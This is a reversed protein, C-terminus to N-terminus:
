PLGERKRWVWETLLLVVVLLLAGYNDWLSRTKTRPNTRPELREALDRVLATAQAMTDARFAGAAALRSLNALDAGLEIGEQSQHARVVLDRTEALTALDPHPSTVTIRWRGVGLGALTHHWLADADQVRALEIERETDAVPEGQDDLRQVRAHPPVTIATGDALRTRARLEVQDGPAILSRDLAAQLRDDHGRLRTGLGWRVAQLWFVQHIRDGLRDRWRWTEPSGMWLVRGAGFRQVAVVPTHAENQAELLVEAGPKAVVGQAIWQLPPLVPWLKRNLVADDLVAVIPNEAALQREAGGQPITVTVPATEGSSQNVVRVPLLNAIGGLGYAHPLGRPGAICVLFGGRRSVFRELRQQDEANVEGPALDGLVVLDFADLAEQTPPLLENENRPLRVSRYRRVVEIRRDREFMTVLYRSDWRPTADVVLVKLPDDNVTVNCEAQNNALSAETQDDSAPAGQPRDPDFPALRSGPIPRELSQDPLQWGVAVNSGGGGQKHLVELYYLRDKELVVPPSRQSPFKDWNRAETWDYVEALKVKHATLDDTSLWLESADDSAVWFTYPGSLPAVVYGSLRSGFSATSENGVEAAPVIETRTPKLKFAPHATLDQVQNGPVDLWVERRLGGGPKLGFTATKVRELHAQYSHVGAEADPFEFRETQWAGTGTVSRHDRPKGDCTLSLDWQQEPFGTIRYRVDLRVTEGRFVEAPGQVEAVVADRPQDPDGVLVGALRANRTALARAAPVADIGATQRGDSLLLVAGVHKQDAWTRILTSLPSAFDTTGAPAFGGPKALDLPKYAGDDMAFVEAKGRAALLPLLRSQTLLCARDFRSLTGLKELGAKVAPGTKADALLTRDSDDQAQDLKSLLAKGPELLAKLAAVLTEPKDTADTAPRERRLLGAVRTLLDAQKKLLDTAEALAALAPLLEQARAAHTEALRLVQDRNGPVQGRSWAEQTALVAAILAPLDAAVAALERQAHRPGDPRLAGDVLGLAVAEDLRRGLAMQLDTVAMSGSHDILVAVAPLEREVTRHTLTPELLLLLVVALAAGRLWKLGRRTPRPLHFLEYGLLRLIAWVAVATLPVVLWWPLGILDLSWGTPEATAPNM